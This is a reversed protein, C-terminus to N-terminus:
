LESPQKQVDEAKEKDRVIAILDAKVEPSLQDWQGQRRMEQIVRWSDYATLAATIAFIFASITFLAMAFRYSTFATRTPVM